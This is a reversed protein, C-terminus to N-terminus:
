AAAMLCSPLARRPNIMPFTPTRAGAGGPWHMQKAARIKADNLINIAM